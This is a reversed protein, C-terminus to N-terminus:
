IQVDKLAGEAVVQIEELRAGIWRAVFSRDLVVINEYLHGAEGDSVERFYREDEEGLRSFLPELIGEEVWMGGVGFVEGLRGDLSPDVENVVVHTLFRRLAGEDELLASQLRIQRRLNEWLELDSALEEYNSSQRYYEHLREDTLEEVEVEFDLTMRLRKRLTM